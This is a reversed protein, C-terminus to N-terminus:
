DEFLVDDQGPLGNKELWMVGNYVLMTLVGAIWGFIYEMKSVGKSFSWAEV